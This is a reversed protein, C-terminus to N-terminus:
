SEDKKCQPLMEVEMFKNDTKYDKIFARFCSEGDLIVPREKDQHHFIESFYMFWPADLLEFEKEIINTGCFDTDYRRLIITRKITKSFKSPPINFKYQM